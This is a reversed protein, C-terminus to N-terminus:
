RRRSRASAPYGLTNGEHWETDVMVVRPVPAVGSQNLSIQTAVLDVATAAVIDYHGDIGAADYPPDGLDISAFSIDRPVRLGMELLFGHLHGPGIMVDPKYQRLYKKVDNRTLTELILLPLHEPRPLKRQEYYFASSLLNNSAGELRQSFIAGIRQFGRRQIEGLLGRMMKFHHPCARSLLPERMSYGIAACALNSFDFDLREEAFKMSGIVIGDIGRARVIRQLRRLTMGPEGELWLQEFAFGHLLAQARSGTLMQQLRRNQPVLSQPYGPIFLALTALTRHPRATRLHRMLKVLQPDPRYGLRKAVRLVRSRVQPSIKPDNRLAYSVTARSVKSAVAIDRQSVAFSAPTDAM